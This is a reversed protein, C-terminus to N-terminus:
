VQKMWDQRADMKGKEFKAAGILKEATKRNLKNTATLGGNQPTWADPGQGMGGNLLTVNFLKELDGLGGEKGKTNLDTLVAKRIKPHQILAEYEGVVGLEKAANMIAAKAAMMYAVPRDVDGGAYVMIGGAIADVFDSNNFKLELYELAVYEGGKLKVLNKKRDVIKICGDTTWEGIDGTAFWGGPLYVEKTKDPLKYYGSSVVNGGILIEGRGLCPEGKVNVTDTTKYPVGNNDLLPGSGDETVGDVLKIEVSPLPPGAVGCRLDGNFMVTGGGCTETLGYGQQLPCIAATVWQQVAKDLPGGGSIAVKLRGGTVKKIKKFVLTNFVPTDLGHNQAWIKSRVALQFIYNQIPKGAKAKAEAAKKIIDWIKPVAAMFTPKFEELAGHPEAGSQTLTRPDCYGLASGVALHSNEASLEFIHALPLYCPYVDNGPNLQAGFGEIVGTIMGLLAKHKLLVGKPKGTTGSTYMIVAMSDKDPATFGCENGRGVEILEEVSYVKLGPASPKTERDKATTYDDTYIVTKLTPMRSALKAVQGVNVRNCILAPSGTENVADIVAETGLTAYVTSVVMSQSFAGHATMLWDACTNEWMTLVFAGELDNFDKYENPRPQPKMGVARLGQGFLRAREAM